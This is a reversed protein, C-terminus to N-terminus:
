VDLLHLGVQDDTLLAHLAHRAALQAVLELRREGGLLHLEYQHGFTHEGWLVHLLLVDGQRCVVVQRLGEVHLIGDHSEVLHESEAGDLHVAVEDLACFRAHQLVLVGTHGCSGLGVAHVVVLCEGGCVLCGGVVGDVQYVGLDPLLLRELGLLLWLGVAGECEGVGVVLLGGGEGVVGHEVGHVLSQHLVDLLVHYLVHAASLDAEFLHGGGHTHAAHGEEVADARQCALRGCFEDTVEPQLM